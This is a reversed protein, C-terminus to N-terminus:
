GNCERSNVGLIRAIVIEAAVLLLTLSAPEPVSPNDNNGGAGSLSEGFHMVWNDYGASTGDTKRWTVYDATDVIGDANFDGLLTTAEVVQLVVSKPNYIVDFTLGNFTPFLETDFQGGVNGVNTTIITFSNGLVPEFDDVLVVEITGELGANGEVSLVDWDGPFIGGIEIELAAAPRQTYNGIVATAGISHGPALTGGENVLNGNFADVHLTGGIFNFDGSQMNIPGRADFVAGSELNIQGTAYVNIAGTGSTLTAGNQVNLVASGDTAHGVTITSAGSQIITSDPDTLTLTATGGTPALEINGTDIRGGNSVTVNGTGNGYYPSTGIRLVDVNLLSPSGSGDTGDVFVSASGPTGVNLGFTPSTTRFLGGNQVRLTGQSTASLGMNLEGILWSSPNGSADTGDLTVTGVSGAAFSGVAGTPTEVLAGGTITMEGTGGYGVDICCSNSIVQTGAGDVLLRAAAGPLTGIRTFSTTYTSGSNIQMTVDSVLDLTSSHSLTAGGEVTVMAGSGFTGAAFEVSANTDATLSGGNITLTGDGDFSGGNIVNLEGNPGVYTMDGVTVAGGNSIDLSGNGNGGVTNGGVLLDFGIIDWQSGMGDVIVAGTSGSHYGIAAGASGSVTGGNTISLTGNGQFGVFPSANYTWTSGPGDVTVDGDSGSQYGIYSNGSVVDGGTDINLTGNGADGIVLDSGTTIQGDSQVLVLVDGLSINGSFIGGFTVYLSSFINLTGAGTVASANSSVSLHRVSETHGNVDFLGGDGSVTVDTPWADSIQEDAGLRATAGSQVYLRGSVATAGGTKQLVLTSNEVTTFGTHTNSAAGSMTVTGTYTNAVILEGAGSIANTLSFNFAGDLTLDYGNLNIAGIGLLGAAANWTQNAALKVPAFVIQNSNDNNTVGGAGITLEQGTIIFSLSGSDFTLSNISYPVDVIPLTGENGAFHVNATGNNPPPAVTHGVVDWNAATTWNDNAGGGDWIEGAPLSPLLIFFLALTSAARFGFGAAPSTDLVRPHDVRRM